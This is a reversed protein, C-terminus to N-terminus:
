DQCRFLALNLLLKYAYCRGLSPFSAFLVLVYDGLVSKLLVEMWRLKKSLVLLHMQKLFKITLLQRPEKPM